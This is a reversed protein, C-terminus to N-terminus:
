NTARDLASFRAREDSLVPDNDLRNHHKDHDVDISHEAEPLLRPSAAEASYYDHSCSALLYAFPLSVINTL